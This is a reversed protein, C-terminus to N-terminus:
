EPPRAETTGAGARRGRPCRAMRRPWAIAESALFAADEYDKRRPSPCFADVLGAWGPSDCLAYPWCSVLRDSVPASENLYNAQVLPAQGLWALHAPSGEFLGPNEGSARAAATIDPGEFMTSASPGNGEGYWGGAMFVSAALHVDKSQGLGGAGNYMDEVLDGLIGADFPLGEAPM